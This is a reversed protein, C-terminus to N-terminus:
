GLWRINSKVVTLLIRALKGASSRGDGFRAWALHLHLIIDGISGAHSGQSYLFRDQRGDLLATLDSGM